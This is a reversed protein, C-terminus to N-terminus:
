VLYGDRVLKTRGEGRCQHKQLAQELDGIVLSLSFYNQNCYRLDIKENTEDVVDKVEFQNLLALELLAHLSKVWRVGEFEDNIDELM